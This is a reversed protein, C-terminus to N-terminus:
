DHDSTKQAVRYFEVIGERMAALKSYEGTDHQVRTYILNVTPDGYQNYYMM